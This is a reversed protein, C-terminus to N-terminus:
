QNHMYVNIGSSSGSSGFGGFGLSLWGGGGGVATGAVGVLIDGAAVVTHATGQLVVTAM